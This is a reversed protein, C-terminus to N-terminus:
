YDKTIDASQFANCKGQMRPYLFYETESDGSINTEKGASIPRHHSGRIYGGTGMTGRDANIWDLITM